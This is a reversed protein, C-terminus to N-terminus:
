GKSMVGPLWLALPPFIMIFAMMAFGMYLFPMSSKFCDGLTTDKPSIAKMTFVDLGFPPTILGLQINILSIVAFWLTDYGLALVMPFFLPATIMVISSPDMFCGLFILIIQTAIIILIPHVQMTTAFQVLTSIAGTTALIRSFSISGVVIFFVMVTIQVTSQASKKVMDWSFKKYIAALVYCAIVGLAAAEGPTAIGLFIVGMVAFIVLLIPAIYRITSSIKESLAVKRVEYTPALAPNIICAIICYGAFMIALLVGPVIIAILLKGVSVKAIAGLFVALASPPILIALTGTSVIPGLIMQKKYGRSLMEPQLVKGLIAISGGSIGIMTGLLVGAGIALVSLRGPLKGLLKDVADILQMGAGSAFIIDGMLIFMPIPLFTYNTVSSYFSMALQDFGVWGGWFLFAGMICTFMFAFAIPMGTAMFIILAGFMLALAWYWEM